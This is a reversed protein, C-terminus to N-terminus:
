FGKALEVRLFLGFNFGNSQAGFVHEDWFPITPLGHGHKVVTLALEAGFRTRVHGWFLAPLPASVGIFPKQHYYREGLVPVSGIRWGFMAAWGGRCREWEVFVDTDIQKKRAHMGSPDVVVNVALRGFRMGASIRYLETGLDTRLVGGVSVARDSAEARAPEARGTAATVTIVAAVIWARGWAVRM